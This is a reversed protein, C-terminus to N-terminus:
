HYPYPSPPQAKPRRTWMLVVGAGAVLLGLTYLLLGFGPSVDVGGWGGNKTSDSDYTFWNIILHLIMLGVVATLAILTTQATQLRNYTAWALVLGAVVFVFGIFKAYGPMYVDISLIGEASVNALPLFLGILAAFLGGVVLWGALPIKGAVNAFAAQPNGFGQGASAPYQPAGTPASWSPAGPPASQSPPASWSPPASPPGAPAPPPPAQHGAGQEPPYWMGDSAQWWGPGQSASSM